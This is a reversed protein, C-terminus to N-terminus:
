KSKTKPLFPNLSDQKSWGIDSSKKIHWYKNWGYIFAFGGPKNAHTTSTVSGLSRYTGKSLSGQLKYGIGKVDNPLFYEMYLQCGKATPYTGKSKFGFYLYGPKTKTLVLWDKSLTGDSFVTSSVSLLNPCRLTVNLKGAMVEKPSKFVWHYQVNAIPLKFYLHRHHLVPYPPAGKRQTATSPQPSPERIMLHYTGVVILAVLLAVLYTNNSKM